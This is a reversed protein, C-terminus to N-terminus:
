ILECALNYMLKKGWWNWDGSWRIYRLWVTFIKLLRGSFNSMRLLDYGESFTRGAMWSQCNSSWSGVCVTASVKSGEYFWPLSWMFELEFLSGWPVVPSLDYLSCSSSAAYVNVGWPSSFFFRFGTQSLYTIASFLFELISQAFIVTSFNDRVDRAHARQM